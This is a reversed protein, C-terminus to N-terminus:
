IGISYVIFENDFYKKIAKQYSSEADDYLAWIVYKSISKENLLSNK